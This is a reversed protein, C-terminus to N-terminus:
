LRLDGYLASLAELALEKMKRKNELEIAEHRADEEQMAIIYENDNEDYDNGDNDFNYEM